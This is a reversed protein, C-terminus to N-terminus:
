GRDRGTFQLPTGLAQSVVVGLTEIDARTSEAMINDIFSVSAYVQGDRGVREAGEVSFVGERPPGSIAGGLAAIYGRPGPPPPPIRSLQQGLAPAALMVVVLSTLVLSKAIQM